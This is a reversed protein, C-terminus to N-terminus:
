KTYNFRLFIYRIILLNHRLGKLSDTRFCPATTEIENENRKKTLLTNRAAIGRVHNHLVLAFGAFRTDNMAFLDIGYLLSLNEKGM